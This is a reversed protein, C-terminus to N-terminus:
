KFSYEASPINCFNWRTNNNFTAELNLSLLSFFHRETSDRLRKRDFGKISVQSESKSVEFLFGLRKLTRYIANLFAPWREFGQLRGLILQPHARRAASKLFALRCQSELAQKLFFRIPRNAKRRYQLKSWTHSNVLKEHSCGLSEQKLLGFCFVMGFIQDLFKNRPQLKSRWLKTRSESQESGEVM